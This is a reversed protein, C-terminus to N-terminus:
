SHGSSDSKDGRGGTYTRSARTRRKSVRGSRSDRKSGRGQRNDKRLEVLVKLDVNFTIRPTSLTVSMTVCRGVSNDGTECKSTGRLKDHFTASKYGAKPPTNEKDSDDCISADEENQLDDRPKERLKTYSPQSPEDEDGRQYLPRQHGLPPDSFSEQSDSQQFGTSSGFSSSIECAKALEQLPWDKDMQRRASSVSEQSDQSSVKRAVEAMSFFQHLYYSLSTSASHTTRALDLM